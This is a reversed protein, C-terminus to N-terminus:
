TSRARSTPHRGAEAVLAQGRFEVTVHLGGAPLPVASVTGHHAGVIAAVISLGLGLGDGDAKRSGDLRRFPQFLTAVQDTRIVPGSNAVQLVTRGAEAGTSVTVWGPALNHRLANDLVNAVLREVLEPDGSMPAPRLTSELRIGQTAATERRHDVANATLIALDVDQRRHLGQQSRALTLLAEIIREQHAGAALLRRLTARMSDVTSDPDALTVEVIAQHLTLPTRLEHSANAVFQRQAVFAAELRGLLEDFTDALEKLEDDPGPAALRRNLDDASIRRVAATMTGLPRLVRGAMLWGLVMSVIAMIALAIASGILLQRLDEARQRDLQAELHSDIVPPEPPPLQQGPLDGTDPVSPAALGGPFPSHVVLVYILAVLLVGTVLFLGSYLLTLRLRVTRKLWAPRHPRM